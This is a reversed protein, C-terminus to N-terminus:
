VWVALIMGSVLLAVLYHAVNLVYLGFPKGEWFVIELKIPAIFGLWLWFGAQAGASLTTAGVYDIFHALVYNMVLLAIFTGIYPMTMGNKKAEDIQKQTIGSLRMWLNGFLIPSFWLGGIVMSVIAAVFMAGYNIEAVPIAM